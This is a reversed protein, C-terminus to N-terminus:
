HFLRWWPGRPTRRRSGNRRMGHGAAPRVRRPLCTRVLAILDPYLPGTALGVGLVLGCAATLFDTCARPDEPRDRPAIAELPTFDLADPEAAEERPDRLSALLADRDSEDHPKIPTSVLVPLGGPGRLPVFSEGGEAHRGPRDSDGGDAPRPAIPADLDAGLQEMAMDYARENRDISSTLQDRTTGLAPGLPSSGQSVLPGLSFGPSAAAVEEPLPPAEAAVVQGPSEEEMLKGSDSPSTPSFRATSPAYFLSATSILVGSTPSTFGVAPIAMFSQYLYGFPDNRQIEMRFTMDVLSTPGASPSSPSLLSLEAVRVLLHAGLPVNELSIDLSQHGGQVSSSIGQLAALVSGSPGVLYLEDIAPLEPLEPLETSEVTFKFDQTTPGVPIRYTTIPASAKLTDSIQIDATWPVLKSIGLPSPDHPSVGGAGGPTIPSSGLNIRGPTGAASVSNLTTVLSTKFGSSTSVSIFPTPPPGYTPGSGKPPKTVQPSPATSPVSSTARSTTTTAVIVPLKTGSSVPSTARSITTTAVIVPLKTGNTLPITLVAASGHVPQPSVPSGTRSLITTALLLRGELV